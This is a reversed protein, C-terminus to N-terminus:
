TSRRFSPVTRAAFARIATAEASGRVPRFVVKVDPNKQMFPQLVAKTYNDEFIGFFGVVTVVTPEAARLLGPAALPVTLGAAGALFARRSPTHKIMTM